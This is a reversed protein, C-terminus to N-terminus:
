KAWGSWAKRPTGIPESGPRPDFEPNHNEAKIQRMVEDRLAESEETAIYPQAMDGKLNATAIGNVIYRKAPIEDIDVVDGRKVGNPINHFTGGITALMRVRM